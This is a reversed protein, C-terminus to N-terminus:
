QGLLTKNQVMATGSVGQGGTQITGGYGGAAALSAKTRAAADEAQASVPTPPAAPPTPM